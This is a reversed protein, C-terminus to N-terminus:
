HRLGLIRSEFLAIGRRELLEDVLSEGENKPPEEERGKRKNVKAAEWATNDLLTNM